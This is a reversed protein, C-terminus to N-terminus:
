RDRAFPCVEVGPRAASCQLLENPGVWAGATTFRDLQQAIDQWAACQAASPLPALLAQIPLGTTQVLDICHQCSPLRMPAQLARVEITDFGAPALLEALLGPQGLSSPRPRGWAM